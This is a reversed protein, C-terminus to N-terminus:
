KYYSKIKSIDIARCNLLFDLSIIFYKDDNSDKDRSRKALSYYIGGMFLTNIM